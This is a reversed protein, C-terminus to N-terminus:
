ASGTSPGAILNRLALRLSRARPLAGVGVRGLFVGHALEANVFLKSLGTRIRPVAADAGQEATFRISREGYRAFILPTMEPQFQLALSTATLWFRQVARGGAIYDDIAELPKDAVILFHAACRYGPLLDMQLRPPWTGALYRNMFQVREWRQLVWKMIKLTVADVGIAQDPLRDESFQAGWEINRRHVEWAERTTLRIYASRFLLKAM